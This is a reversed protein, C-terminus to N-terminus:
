KKNAKNYIDLLQQKTLAKEKSFTTDLNEWDRVQSDFYGKSSYIRARINKDKQLVKQVARHHGENIAFTGDKLMVVDIDGSTRSGNGKM